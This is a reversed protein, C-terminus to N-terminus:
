IISFFSFFTTKLPLHRLFFFSFLFYRRKYHGSVDNGTSRRFASWSSRRVSTGIQHGRGGQRLRLKSFNEIYVVTVGGRVRAFITGIDYRFSLQFHFFYPNTVHISPTCKFMSFAALRCAWYDFM